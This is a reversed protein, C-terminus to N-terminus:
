YEGLSHGALWGPRIDSQKCWVEWVAVGAALMLPQTNQTQNLDNEPGNTALGWLDRGLVMSAKDFTQKVEPYSASLSNLMGVSQSGQGPFVFALNQQKSMM